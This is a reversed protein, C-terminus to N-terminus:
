RIEHPDQGPRARKMASRWVNSIENRDIYYGGAEKLLDRNGANHAVDRLCALIAAPDWGRFYDHLIAKRVASNRKISDIYGLDHSHSTDDVKELIRSGDPLFSLQFKAHCTGAGERPKKATVKARTENPKRHLRCSGRVYPIGTDYSPRIKTDHVCWM